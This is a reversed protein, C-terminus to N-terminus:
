STLYQLWSALSHQEMSGWYLGKMQLEVPEAPLVMDSEALLLSEGAMATGLLLWSCGTGSCVGSSGALTSTLTLELILLMELKLPFCTSGTGPELSSIISLWDVGSSLEKM